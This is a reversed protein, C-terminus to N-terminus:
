KKSAYLPNAVRILSGYKKKMEDFAKMVNEPIDIHPLYNKGNPGYGDKNDTLRPIEGMLLTIYREMTWMGSIVDKYELKGNNVVVTAHYSAYNIIKKDPSEKNITAEMRRQMTADQTFIMTNSDIRNKRILNLMYTINNGCNTSEKEIYDPQLRYKKEIYKSFLEAESKEDTEMDPFEIKMKQRLTETTHGAGGVIIYKKAVKNKMGEALVDGGALISGGFLVMIDAKEIGIKKTIAASTIEKIDRKGLYNGLINIYEAVKQDM